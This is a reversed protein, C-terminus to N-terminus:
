GVVWRCDASSKEVALESPALPNRGTVRTNLAPHSFHALDIGDAWAELCMMYNLIAIRLLETAGPRKVRERLSGWYERAHKLKVALHRPNTGALRRDLIQWVQESVQKRLERHASALDFGTFDLFQIPGLRTKIEQWPNKM